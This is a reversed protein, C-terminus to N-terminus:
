GNRGEQIASKMQRYESKWFSSAINFRIANEALLRMERDLGVNNGDNGAKLGATEIVEPANFPLGSDARAFEAQFNIDRTRYGPTAANAINTAVLRQRVSLLDM